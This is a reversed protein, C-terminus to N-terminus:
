IKLKLGHEALATIIKNLSVRGLNPVCRLDYVRKNCLDGITHIGEAQLCNLARRDLNLDEVSFSLLKNRDNREELMADAVVYALEITKDKPACCSEYSILKQMAKAAFYDRLSMGPNDASPFAPGGDDIYVTVIMHEEGKTKKM